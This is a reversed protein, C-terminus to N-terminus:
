ASVTEQHQPKVAEGPRWACSEWSTVVDLDRREPPKKRLEHPAAFICLDSRHRVMYSLFTGDETDYYALPSVVEVEEGDLRMLEDPTFSPDQKLIAIEGVRFQSNM